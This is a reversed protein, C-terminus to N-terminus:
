TIELLNPCALERLRARYRVNLDVLQRYLEQLVYSCLITCLVALESKLWESIANRDLGSPLGTMRCLIRGTPVMENGTMPDHYGMGEYYAEIDM